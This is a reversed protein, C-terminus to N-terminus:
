QQICIESQFNPNRWVTKVINIFVEKVLWYSNLKFPLSPHVISTGIQLLIPAHDSLFPSDVWSRIKDDVYILSEAIFFHDLWKSIYTSGYKGNCWTPALFELHLDVLDHSQFLSNFYDVLPDQTATDGWIEGLCTTFNLDGALILNTLDLLGKSEVKDL